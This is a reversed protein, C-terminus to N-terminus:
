FPKPKASVVDLGCDALVQNNFVKLADAHMLQNRAQIWKQVGSSYMNQMRVPNLNNIKGWHFTYPIKRKELEDWVLKYFNRTIVSEVGDLEVICTYDFKTFALLGDSKKVYRYSFIGSFPGHAKNLEILMSNVQNTFSIPIGIATSVVKGRIDNNTFIEGLTGLVNSFTLFGKKIGQNVILPTVFPILDTIKGLVTPMDDGPGAKDVAPVPPNYDNNYPRKYMVTAYAGSQLDYQNIVIQFHFPRENGHPILHANTFDLTEMMHELSMDIPIRQRFCELLYIEETEIMVGHIFGFSGFSVLAANFLDDNRVLHTKLRQILADAVVPYSARELWIHTDPGTIIHMGVIFDPTSGADIASGHTGTSFAGVITQGNSAGCTRLSKHVRKLYSNLEQISNGCQSFLLQDKRGTYQVSVSAANVEFLLNLQKTNLMWGDSAAVKSFSWGGGLARLRKNQQIARGIMAMIAETTANYDEVLDGTDGNAIDFLNDLEQRFTNHRNIWVKQNTPVIQPLTSM